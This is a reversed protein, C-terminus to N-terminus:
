GDKSENRRARELERERNVVWGLREGLHFHKMANFKEKPRNDGQYLASDIVTVLGCGGMYRCSVGPYSPRRIFAVAALLQSAVRSIGYLAGGRSIRCRTKGEAKAGRKGFSGEAEIEDRCFAM